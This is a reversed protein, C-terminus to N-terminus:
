LPTDRVVCNFAERIADAARIYASMDEDSNESGVLSRNLTDLIVVGPWDGKLQAKIDSILIGYEGVLDLRSPILHFPIESVEDALRERRFAEIRALFGDAGECAVYVVTGQNVRRGRYKWGPAVHMALDFVFFSKGCKPAGWIVTLGENPILGKVRYRRSTSLTVDNFPILEFHPKDSRGPNLDPNQVPPGKDWDSSM